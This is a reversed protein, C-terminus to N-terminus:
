GGFNTAAVTYCYQAGVALGTDLYNTSSTTAIQTGGRKVIYGLAGGSANWVVSIQNTGATTAALNQPTPPAGPVNQSLILASYPPISLTAISVAVTTSLSGFNGYLDSSRRTPFSNFM